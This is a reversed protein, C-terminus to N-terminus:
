SVTPGWGTYICLNWAETGKTGAGCHGPRGDEHCQGGPVTKKASFTIPKWIIQYTKKQSKWIIQYTKKSKWIIQYTKKIKIHNSISKKPKWIIQYTKPNEYTKIHKKSKWIIPYTKKSRWIIQHKKPKWTNQYIKQAQNSADNSKM